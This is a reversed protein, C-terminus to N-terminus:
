LCAETELFGHTALIPRLAAAWKSYGIKNPHLLDPFEPKKADGQANAIGVNICPPSEPYNLFVM